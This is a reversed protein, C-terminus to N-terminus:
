YLYEYVILGLEKILFPSTVHCVNQKHIERDNATKIKLLSKGTCVVRARETWIDFLRVMGHNVAVFENKSMRVLQSDRTTFSVEIKPPKQEKSTLDCVSFSCPRDSSAVLCHESLQVVSRFCQDSIQTQSGNLDVIFTFCNSSYILRGDDAVFMFNIQDPSTALHRTNLGDMLFIREGNSCILRGDLLQVLHRVDRITRVCLRTEVNWIRIIYHDEHDFERSALQGNPLEFLRDITLGNTFGSNVVDGPHKLVIVSNTNMVDHIHIDYSGSALRGNRLECLSGIFTSHGKLEVPKQSRQEFNWVYLKHHSTFVLSGNKLQLLHNLDSKEDVYTAPGVQKWKDTCIENEFPNFLRIITYPDTKQGIVAFHYPEFQQEDEKHQRKVQTWDGCADNLKISISDLKRKADNWRKRWLKVRKICQEDRKDSKRKTDM